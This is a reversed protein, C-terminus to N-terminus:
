EWMFELISEIKINRTWKDDDHTCFPYDQNGTKVFGVTNPYESEFDDYYLIWRGDDGIIWDDSRIRWPNKSKYIVAGAIRFFYLFSYSDMHYCVNDNVIVKRYIGNWGKFQFPM